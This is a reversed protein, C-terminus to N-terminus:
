RLDTLNKLLPFSLVNKMRLVKNGMARGLDRVVIDNNNNAEFKASLDPFDNSVEIREFNCIPLACTQVGTM